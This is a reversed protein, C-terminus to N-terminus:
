VLGNAHGTLENHIGFYACKHRYAALSPQVDTASASSTLHIIAVIFNPMIQTLSDPSTCGDPLRRPFDVASHLQSM